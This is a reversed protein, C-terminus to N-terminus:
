RTQIGQANLAEIIERELVRIWKNYKKHILDDKLKLNNSNVHKISFDRNNYLIEITAQHARRKCHCLLKGPDDQHCIWGRRAATLVIINKIDENHMHKVHSPMPHHHVDHILQRRHCGLLAIAQAILLLILIAKKM